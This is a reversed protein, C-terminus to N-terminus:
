PKAVPVKTKVTYPVLEVVKEVVRKTTPEETTVETKVLIKRPHPGSGPLCFPDDKTSYVTKTVKKVDPVTKCVYRVAEKYRVEEAWRYGPECPPDGARLAAGATTLFLALAAARTATM